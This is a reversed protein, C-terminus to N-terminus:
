QCTYKKGNMNITDGSHIMSDYSITGNECTLTHEGDKCTKGEAVTLTDGDTVCDTNSTANNDVPPTTHNNDVPPTTNNDSDTTTSGGGGCGNLLLMASLVLGTKLLNTM